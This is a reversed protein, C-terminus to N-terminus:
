SVNKTLEPAMKSEYDAVDFGCRLLLTKTQDVFTRLADINSSLFKDVDKAESLRRIASKKRTLANERIQSTVSIPVLGSADQAIDIKKTFEFVFSFMDPHGAQSVSYKAASKLKFSVKNKLANIIIWFLFGIVYMESFLKFDNIHNSIKIKKIISEHVAKFYKDLESDNIDEDMLKNHLYDDLRDLLELDNGSIDIKTTLCFLWPVESLKQFQYNLLQYVAGLTKEQLVKGCFDLNVLHYPAFKRIKQWALANINCISEFDFHEVESTKDINPRDVLQNLRSEAKIKMDVSNVLGHIVIKLDDYQANGEMEKSFFDADLLEPGPLGFYRIKREPLNMSTHKEVLLKLNKWWQEQRVWQKRPKHWPSYEQITSDKKEVNIGMSEYHDSNDDSNEFFNEM